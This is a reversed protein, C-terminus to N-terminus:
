NYKIIQNSSLIYMSKEYIYPRAIFKKDLDIIKKSLGDSLDIINLKGNTSLYIKNKGVLFGNNELDDWKKNKFKTKINTSRVLKGNKKDLIILFGNDAITIILDKTITPRISSNIKKRWKVSGTDLSVAFFENKNNSFYITNNDLVIDSYINTFSDEYIISKSTPTQWILNGNQDLTNLDGTHNLFIVKNEDLVLSTKKTSKILTNETQYEWLLNGNEISFCKLINDYDVTFIKNDAIKIESNFAASNTKRWLLDGNLINLAYYNSLNDTLILTNKEIALNLLPNLKKEKKSYINKEWIVELDKSFKIITGKSNFFYINGNKSYLIDPKFKSFNKIKSFKIKKIQKLNGDYNKIGTNNNYYNKKNNLTYKDKLYIKVNKNLEQSVEKNDEFIIDKYQNASNIKKNKSWIGSKNDISCGILFIFFIVLCFNKNVLTEKSEKEQKL